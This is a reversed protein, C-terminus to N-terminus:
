WWPRVHRSAGNGGTGCQQEQWPASLGVETSRRPSNVSSFGDETKVWSGARPSRQECMVRQLGIRSWKFVFFQGWAFSPATSKLIAGGKAAKSRTGSELPQLFGLIIAV